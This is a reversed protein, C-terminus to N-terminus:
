CVRNVQERIIPLCRCSRQWMRAIAEFCACSPIRRFINRILSRLSSGNRKRGLFTLFQSLTEPSGTIVLGVILAIIAFVQLLVIGVLRSRFPEKRTKHRITQQAIVTGISGGIFALYLLTSEPIRQARNEARAKDFVM